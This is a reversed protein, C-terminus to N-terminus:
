VVRGSSPHNEHLATTHSESSNKIYKSKQQCSLSIISYQCSYTQVVTVAQYVRYENLAGCPEGRVGAVHIAAM